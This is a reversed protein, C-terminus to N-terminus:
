RQRVPLNGSRALKLLELMRDIEANSPDGSEALVSVILVCTLSEDIRHAKNVVPVGEGSRSYEIGDVAYRMGGHGGFLVQIVRLKGDINTIYYEGLIEENRFKNQTARRIPPIFQPELRRWIALPVEIHKDTGALYVDGPPKILASVRCVSSKSFIVYDADWGPKQSRSVLLYMAILVTVCFGCGRIAVKWSNSM